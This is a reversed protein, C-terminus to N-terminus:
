SDLEDIVAQIGSIRCQLNPNFINCTGVLIDEDCLDISLAGNGWTYDGKSPEDGAGTCQDDGPDTCSSYDVVPADGPDTCEDTPDTCSSYYSAEDPQTGCDPLNNGAHQLAATIHGPEIDLRRRSASGAATEAAEIIDSTAANQNECDNWTNLATQYDSDANDTCTNYTDYNGVCETYDTNDQNWTNLATQHDSDANATCTEYTSVDSSYTTACSNYDTNVQNWTDWATTYEGAQFECQTLKTQEQTKFAEALVKVGAITNLNDYNTDDITLTDGVVTITEDGNLKFLKINYLFFHYKYYEKRSPSCKSNPYKINSQIYRQKSTM